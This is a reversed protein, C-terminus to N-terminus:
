IGGGVGPMPFGGGGDGRSSNQQRRQKEALGLTTSLVMLNFDSGYSKYIELRGTKMLGFSSNSFKAVVAQTQEDILKFDRSFASRNWLFSRRDGSNGNAITVEIRFKRGTLGQPTVSEWVVDNPATPDGFGIKFHRSFHSFKCVSVVPANNDAGAHITLDPKKPTFSSNDAHLLQRGNVSVNYDYRFMTHDIEYLRTGSLDSEPPDWGVINASQIFAQSAM